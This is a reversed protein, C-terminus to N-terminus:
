CLSARSKCRQNHFARTVVQGNAIDLLHSAFALRFTRSTIQLYSHVAGEESARRSSVALFAQVDEAHNTILLFTLTLSRRHLIDSTRTRGATSTSGEM